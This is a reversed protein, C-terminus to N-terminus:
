SKENCQRAGRYYTGQVECFGFRTFFQQLRVLDSGYNTTPHVALKKNELDACRCATEMLETGIGKNRHPEPVFIRSIYLCDEILWPTLDLVALGRPNELLKHLSLSM